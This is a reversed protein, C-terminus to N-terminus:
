SPTGTLLDGSGNAGRSPGVHWFGSSNIDKSTGHKAAESATVGTDVHTDLARSSRCRQRSDTAKV